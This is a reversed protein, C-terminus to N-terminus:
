GDSKGKKAELASIRDEYRAFLQRIGRPGEGNGYDSCAEAVARTDADGEEPWVLEPHVQIVARNQIIYRAPLSEHFDPDWQVEIHGGFDHDPFHDIIRRIDNALNYGSYGISLPIVADATSRIILADGDVTEEEADHVRLQVDTLGALPGNHVENIQRRNLPPSITIAGTYRNNYSM